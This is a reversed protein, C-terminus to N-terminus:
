ASAFRANPFELRVEELIQDWGARDYRDSVHILVLERVNALRALRGVQSSTMHLNRAALDADAAQYQCECVVTGVGELAPVLKAFATEDLVFDTLYAISDGPTTELLQARVEELTLKIGLTELDGSSLTGNKLAGLWAGPRLGLANLAETLVNVRPAERVVYALSAIGHNMTLAEVSYQATKLFTGPHARTGASHRTAFAESLRYASSTVDRETVDHVTWTVSSAAHLNWAFGQLRHQMVDRTGPPGWIRNRDGERAYVQRFFSDFGAVHDMHLHSFLLHDFASVEAHAVRSVTDEGCDFLLRAQGQGWNLRVWLANDAGLEGLVQFEIM